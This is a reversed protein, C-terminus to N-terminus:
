EGKVSYEKINKVMNGFDEKKVKRLYRNIASVIEKSLEEYDKKTLSDFPEDVDLLYEQELCEQVYEMIVESSIVKSTLCVPVSEGIYYRSTECARAERVAEEKTEKLSSFNAEKFNEGDVSYCYQKM